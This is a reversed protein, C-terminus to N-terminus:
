LLIPKKGNTYPMKHTGGLKKAARNNADTEKDNPMKKLVALVAQNFVDKM